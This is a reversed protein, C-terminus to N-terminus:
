WPTSDKSAPASRSSTSNFPLKHSSGVCAVVPMPRYQDFVLDTVTKEFASGRVVLRPRCHGMLYDLEGATQRFNLPVFIAGLRASALYLDLFAPRNELVVAVRDGKEIGISQLWCATREVRNWLARYTIQTGEFEIAIKDPYLEEWRQIWWTPNMSRM